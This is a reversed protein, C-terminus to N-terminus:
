FFFSDGRLLGKGVPSVGTGNINVVEFHNYIDKSKYLNVEIDGSQERRGSLVNCLDRSLVRSANELPKNGPEFIIRTDRSLIFNM